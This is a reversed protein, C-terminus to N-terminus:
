RPAVRPVTLFFETGEGETSRFDLVGGLASETQQFAVNLGLGTGDSGARTTFFPDFVKSQIDAPIGHGDDAVAIRVCEDNVPEASITITGAEGDRWAHRIANTIINTLIQAVVGPYSDMTLAGDVRTVVTHPTKKLSPRLTILVDNVTEELRFERRLSGTQDASIQKFSHILESARHVNRVAIDLGADADEFFDALPGAVEFERARQVDRIGDRVSTVAMLANGIPTNLEHAVGAVLRGLAALKESRVVVGQMQHLDDLTQRLERNRSELEATRDLVRDELEDNLSRMADERSRIREAMIRLNADLERFERISEERGEPPEHGDAIRDSIARLNAVMSVLQRSWVPSLLLAILLFSFVMLLIDVLTGRLLPNDLGAPRGVVFTWGLIGSRSSAPHYRDGHWTFANPLPREEMAARFFAHESVNVVGSEASDGTDAMLEGRGDVVWLRVEPDSATRVTQLLADLSIEAIAARGGRRLGVGVSTDGSLVSIFKDSWLSRGDAPLDVYLPNRSFDIGILGPFLPGRSDRNEVAFTLGNEDLFYLARVLPANDLAPDIVRAFSATDMHRSAELLPSLLLEVGSLLGETRSVLEQANQGAREVSSRYADARRLLFISGGSLALSGASILVVFLTIYSRFSVPGPKM